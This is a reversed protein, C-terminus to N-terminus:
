LGAARTLLGGLGTELTLTLTLTLARRGILPRHRLLSGRRSRGVLVFRISLM